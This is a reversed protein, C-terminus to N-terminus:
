AVEQGDIEDDDDDDFDDDPDPNALQDAYQVLESPKHGLQKAARRLAKQRMPDDTSALAPRKRAPGDDKIVRKNVQALVPMEALEAELAKLGDQKAIRRLREERPSALAAGTEGDRGYLLKGAHYASELVIDVQKSLSAEVIKEAAALKTEATTARTTAVDREQEAALQNRRMAEVARIAAEEDTPAALATLGLLAALRHFGMESRATPKEQAGAGLSIEADLASRIDEIKTGKVAPVNVASVESGEAKTFCWEVTVKKGDVEKEELPYCCRTSWSRVDTRHISCLVPGTPIWGISFRDLTGDLVSIVAEPKVIRLTQRIGSWGDGQQYLESAIITGIRASQEYTNHDFLVPMGVFSSAFAELIEPEFRLGRFNPKGDKQRFTRATVELQIVEGARVAAILERRKDADTIAGKLETAIAAAGIVGIAGLEAIEIDSRLAIAPREKAELTTPVALLSVATLSSALRM